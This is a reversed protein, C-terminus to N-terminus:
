IPTISSAFGLRENSKGYIGTLTLSAMVKIIWGNAPVDVIAELLM